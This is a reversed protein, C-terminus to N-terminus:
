SSAESARARASLSSHGGTYNRACVMGYLCPWNLRWLRPKARIDAALDALSTDTEHGVASIIPTQCDAIASIVKEENFAWLDEMSGGGRGVIIVDVEPHHDLADIAAAISEAAGNGQVRCDEFVVPMTPFRAVIGSLM